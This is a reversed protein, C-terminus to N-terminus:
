KLDIKWDDTRFSSAPLGAGNFLSGEVTNSWAYRVAVPKKVKSSRVIVANGVIKAIAPYFQQDEGAIQFHQLPQNSKTNLGEAFDFQLTANKGKVVMDKFQPGSYVLTKNYTKALAWKALRRGVDYKNTPHIDDPNGVDNIVAMGTNPVSQMTKMQAEMLLTGQMPVSYKYPALQVFYFPFDRKWEDRWSKILNSFVYTYEHANGTNSEGQYWIVGAIKFNTLPAIMANYTNGPKEPCWPVPKNTAAALTLRKDEKITTANIWTEAPTGGWSSHIIGIPVDLATHLEKGFFYAVASFNNVTEPSCVEWEGSVDLQPADAARRTVHFNRIQPLNAEAIAQEKHDIGSGVSWEMNSQGSALWIEGILIDEILLSNYGAVSLMYPGGAPPTSLTVRWKAYSNAKTLVEKNDWSGKVKVEENPAAWGWIIVESNQQLVMHDAFISPLTVKAELSPYFNGTLLIFAVVIQLSNRKM